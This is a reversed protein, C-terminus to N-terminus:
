KVLKEKRQLWLFLPSYHKVIVLYDGKAAVQRVHRKTGPGHSCHHHDVWHKETRVQGLGVLYLKRVLVTNGQSEHCQHFAINLWRGHGISGLKLGAVFMDSM